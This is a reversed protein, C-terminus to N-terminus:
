ITSASPELVQKKSFNFFVKKIKRVTKPKELSIFENGLVTINKEYIYKSIMRNATFAESGRRIKCNWGIGNFDSYLRSFPFPQVHSSFQKAIEQTPWATIGNNFVFMGPPARDPM